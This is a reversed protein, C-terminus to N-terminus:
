GELPTAHPAGHLWVELPEISRVKATDWVWWCGSMRLKVSADTRDAWFLDIDTLRGHLVTVDDALFEERRQVDWNILTALRHYRFFLEGEHGTAVFAM